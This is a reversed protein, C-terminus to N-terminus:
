SLYEAWAIKFGDGEKEFYLREKLFNNEALNKEAMYEWDAQVSYTYEAETWYYYNTFTEDFVLQKQEGAEITAQELTIQVHYNELEQGMAELYDKTIGDRELFAEQLNQEYFTWQDSVSFSEANLNYRVDLYERTLARIEEMEEESLREKESAPLLAEGEPDYGYQAIKWVGEEELFYVHYLLTYHQGEEFFSQEPDEPEFNEIYLMVRVTQVLYDTEDIRETESGLDETGLVRSILAEQRVSEVGAHYEVDDHYDLRFAEAYYADVFKTTEESTFDHYDVDWIIHVLEEAIEYPSALHSQCGYAGGLITLAMMGILVVYVIKKAM